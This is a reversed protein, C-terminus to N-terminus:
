FVIITGRGLVYGLVITCAVYGFLLRWFGWGSWVSMIITLILVIILALIIYFWFKQLNNKRYDLAIAIIISPIICILGVLIFLLFKGWKFHSEYTNAIKDIESWVSNPASANMIIIGNPNFFVYHRIITSGDTKSLIIRSIPGESLEESYIIESNPFLLTNPMKKAKNQDLNDISIADISLTAGDKEFVYILGNSISDCHYVCKYTDPIDFSVSRLSRTEITWEKANATEVIALVFTAILLLLYKKM